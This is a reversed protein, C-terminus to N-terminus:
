REVQRKKIPQINAQSYLEAALRLGPLSTAAQM